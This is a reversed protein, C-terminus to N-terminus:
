DRSIEVSAGNWENAWGDIAVVARSGSLLVPGVASSPISSNINAVCWWWAGVGGNLNLATSVLGEGRKSSIIHSTTRTHTPHPWAGAMRGHLRPDAIDLRGRGLGEPLSRNLAASLQLLRSRQSANSMVHGRWVVADRKQEWPVAWASSAASMRVPNTATVAGHVITYGNSAVFWPDPMIYPASAPSMNGARLPEAWSTALWGASHIDKLIRLVTSERRERFLGPDGHHYAIICPQRVGRGASQFFQRVALARTEAQANRARGDCRRSSSAGVSRCLCYQFGRHYMKADGGGLDVCTLRRFLPSLGFASHNM